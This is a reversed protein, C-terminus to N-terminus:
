KKASLSSLGAAIRGVGSPISTQPSGGEPKNSGAGPKAKARILSDREPDAEVLKRIADEFGLPEGRGDVLVTRDKAGAPKDYGVVQGDKVEFHNGYVVRAKSPTLLLEESIFPSNSFSSGVTMDDLRGLLQANAERLEQLEQDKTSLVKEHESVMMERLRDFEGRKELDQKEREAQEAQRASEAEILEQVREPTVDGFANLRGELEKLQTKKAMVEKLLKAEQDTPKAGEQGKDGEGKNNEAKADAADGNEAVGGEGKAGDAADQSGASGAAEGEGKVADFLRRDANYKAFWPM